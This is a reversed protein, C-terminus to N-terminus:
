AGLRRAAASGASAPERVSAQALCPSELIVHANAGGFGFSNVGIILKGAKRLKRNSTVLDLNWDALKINPNVINVGITAPVVRHQICHLAKVLGAVGSATELHGMNSKVSGIPLPESLPDASAWRKVSPSPKM